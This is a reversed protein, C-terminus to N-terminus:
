SKIKIRTGLQDDATNLRVKHENENRIEKGMDKFKYPKSELSFNKLNM